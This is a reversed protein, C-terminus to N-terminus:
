NARLQRRAEARTPARVRAARPERIIASPCLTLLDDNYFRVPLTIQFMGNLVLSCVLAVPLSARLALGSAAVLAALIGCIQLLAVVEQSPMREFLHMYSLPQVLAARQGAVVGYDTIALHLALLGCLGIRVAALRRADEQAFLWGDARHLLSEARRM